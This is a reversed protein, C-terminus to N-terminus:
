PGRRLRPGLGFPPQLKKNPGAVVEARALLLLAGLALAGLFTGPSFGFVFYIRVADYLSYIAVGGLSLSWLASWIPRENNWAVWSVNGSHKLYAPALIVLLSVFFAAYTKLTGWFM